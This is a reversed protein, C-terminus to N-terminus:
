DVWSTSSNGSEARARDMLAASDTEAQEPRTQQALSVAIFIALGLLVVLILISPLSRLCTLPKKMQQQIKEPSQDASAARAQDEAQQLRRLLDTRRAEEALMLLMLDRESGRLAAQIEQLSFTEEDFVERSFALFYDAIWPLDKEAVRPM